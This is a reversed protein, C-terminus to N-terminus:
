LPCMGFNVDASRADIGKSLGLAREFFIESEVENWRHPENMVIGPETAIAFIANLLCLWPREVGVFQRARALEYTGIIAAEHVFVFPTGPGSFFARVLDMARNQPPLALLDM